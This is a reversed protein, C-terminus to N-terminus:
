QPPKKWAMAKEPGDRLFQWGDKELEPCYISLSGRSGILVQSLDVATGMIGRSNERYQCMGSEFDQFRIAKVIPCQFDPNQKSRAIDLEVLNGQSLEIGAPVIAWSADNYRAGGARTWFYSFRVIAYKMDESSQGKCNKVYSTAPLFKNPGLQVGKSVDDPTAIHAVEGLYLTHESVMTSACGGMLFLVVCSISLHKLSFKM